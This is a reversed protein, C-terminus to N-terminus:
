WGGVGVQRERRKNEIEKLVEKIKREMGKWGGELDETDTEM